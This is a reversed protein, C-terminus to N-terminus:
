RSAPTWLRRFSRRWSSNWIATGATCHAAPWCTRALLRALVALYCERAYAPYDREKPIGGKGVYSAYQDRIRFAMASAAPVANARERAIATLEAACERGLTGALGLDEAVGAGTLPRVGERGIHRALFSVLATADGAGECILTEIQELHIDEAAYEGAEVDRPQAFRYARWEVGDSLVCRCVDAHGGNNLLGAAYGGLQRLGAEEQGTRRLDRKYEIATLGVVSDAGGRRRRGQELYQLQAEAGRIHGTVWWPRIEQPFVTALGGVLTQRVVTENGHRNRMEICAAILARVAAPDHQPLERERENM